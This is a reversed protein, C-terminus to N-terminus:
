SRERERLREEVPVTGEGEYGSLSQECFGSLVVGSVCPQGLNFKAPALLSTWYCM